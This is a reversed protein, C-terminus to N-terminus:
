KDGLCSMKTPQQTFHENVDYKTGCPRVVATAANPHRQDAVGAGDGGVRGGQPPAQHGAQYLEDAGNNRPVSAEQGM